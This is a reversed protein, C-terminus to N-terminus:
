NTSLLIMQLLNMQINFDNTILQNWYYFWMSALWLTTKTIIGENDLFTYKQHTNASTLTLVNCPSGGVVGRMKM